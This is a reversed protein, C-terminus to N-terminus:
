NPTLTSCDLGGGIVREGGKWRTGDQFAAWKNADFDCSQKVANSDTLEVTYTEKRTGERECGICTGARLLGLDPWRVDKTSTGSATATREVAWRDVTYYCRDDYVPEDRYRTSCENREVFTGNGRDVKRVHCDEGDPVQRHSRVERSRRLDRAGFPVSDCWSSTPTPGFREVDVDRRWTHGSVVLAAEKKWTVAVVVLAVLLLMSACGVGLLVKATSSKKPPPRRVRGEELEGRADSASQGGYAFGEGVVQDNRRAVDAVGELPAGCGGCHKANKSNAEGCHVCKVDAGVYEHDESRVKDADSPFYREEANQPAGCSPCHRHKLGLLEKAGCFKCDWLMEYSVEGLPKAPEAADTVTFGTLEVLEIGMQALRARAADVIKRAFGASDAVISSSDLSTALSRAAEIVAYGVYSAFTASPDADPAASVAQVVRLPDRITATADGFIRPSSPDNAAGMPGGFRIGPLPAVTVFYIAANLTGDPALAMWLFPAAAGTLPARGPGILGLARGDRFFVAVDAADCFLESGPPVPGPVVDIAAGRRSADRAVIM